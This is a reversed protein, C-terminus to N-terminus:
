TQELKEPLRYAAGEPGSGEAQLQKETENLEAELSALLKQMQEKNWGSHSSAAAQSKTGDVAQLVLGVVGAHLALQVSQRFLQRLAGKNDRWFRWLSNHDPALMGSLWLLPLQDRCAGELKRTSRVRHHYGYLWIKLLLGPAYPPRGEMSIPMAFGLKALDQQDVFERIFRVPHDKAVWDELAPPFLFQQGYDPAIPQAM